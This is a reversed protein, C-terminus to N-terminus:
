CGEKLSTALKGKKLESSTLNGRVIICLQLTDYMETMAWSFSYADIRM